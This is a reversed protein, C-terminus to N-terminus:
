TIVSPAILMPTKLNLVSWSPLPRSYTPRCWKPTWVSSASAHTSRAAPQIGAGHRVGRVGQLRVKGPELRITILEHVPVLPEVDRDHVALRVLAALGDAAGFDNADVGVGHMQALVAVVAAPAAGEVLTEVQTEIVTRLFEEDITHIVVRRLRDFAELKSCNGWYSCLQDFSARKPAAKLFERDFETLSAARRADDAFEDLHRVSHASGFVCTATPDALQRHFSGLVGRENLSAITWHGEGGRQRKLQHFERASGHRVWFEVGQGEDGPPELRISDAREAMVGILQWVTWRGEFSNGFKDAAGGPLTM